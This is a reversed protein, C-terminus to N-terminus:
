KAIQRSPAIAPQGRPDRAGAPMVRTSRRSSGIKV